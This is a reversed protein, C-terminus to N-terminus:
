PPTKAFGPTNPERLQIVGMFADDRGFDIPGAWSASQGTSNQHQIFNFRLLTPRGRDSSALAKWPIAVEGRWLHERADVSSAYRIDVGEFAHWPDAGPDDSRAEAKREVWQGSPKCVVHLTPGPTNDVYLPQILLECLDEGWARRSQYDVFNHFSRINEGAGDGATIRFAVYFQEDSWTSYISAPSDAAEAHDGQVAPRTLMRVLPWDLQLADAADWEDLSGDITLRRERRESIAVPLRFRCRVAQATLGDVMAIELPARSAASLQDLNFRADVNVRQVHFRRLVPVEVPQPRVQWGAALATWQLQNGAAPQEDSPNYVDLGIRALLWNGAPADPGIDWEWKVSRPLLTAREQPAFWRMAQPDIPTEHADSPLAGTTSAAIAVQDPRPSPEREIRQALLSRAERWATADVTGCLLALTPDPKQAPQLEVPKVLLRALRMAIDGEGRERALYLYEFDQQARRLWKLQITPLPRDGLGFWQGPYFWVMDRPDAPKELSDSTPLPNNWLILSADRLYALWAWLRVAQLSGGAGGLPVLAPLDTRLWHKPRAVGDPWQQIPSAFVLGPSATLLRAASDVTVANSKSQSAASALQVQDEELPVAVHIRSHADLVHRAEASLIISDAASARASSESRLVVPSRDLWGLEDFHGAALRWYDGRSKPDFHDLFDPAPLPWFALPARDTFADGRMWPGVLSDFDSWDVQPPAGPPWKVTPQLRPVVVETRNDHALALMQDLIRVAAVYRDDHRNLLRPTISEFTTPYLHILSAWDIQAAMQVHPTDPLIFDYVTLHLPLSALVGHSKTDILDCASQLDGARADTPIRFELWLLVPGTHPPLKSLDISCDGARVALPVLVRPVPRSQGALEGTERIYDARNPDMPVSQVQYADISVTPGREGTTATIPRIRLTKAGGSSLQKADVQVAFDLWENRAGSLAIPGDLTAAQTPRSLDIARLGQPDLAPANGEHRACSTAALAACIVFLYPVLPSRGLRVFRAKTSVDVYTPEICLPHADRRDIGSREGTAPM